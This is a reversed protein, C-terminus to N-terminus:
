LQFVPTHAEFSLGFKLTSEPLPYDPNSKRLLLSRLTM